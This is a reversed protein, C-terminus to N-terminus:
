RTLFGYIDLSQRRGRPTEIGEQFAKYFKDIALQFEVIDADTM